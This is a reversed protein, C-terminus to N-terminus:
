ESVVTGQTGTRLEIPIPFFIQGSGPRIKADHNARCIIALGGGVQLALCLLSLSCVLDILSYDGVQITTRFGFSSCLCSFGIFVNIRTQVTDKGGISRKDMGMILGCMSLVM